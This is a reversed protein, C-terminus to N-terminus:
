PTCAPHHHDGPARGTETCTDRPAGSLPALARV